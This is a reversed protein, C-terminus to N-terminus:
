FCPSLCTAIPASAERGAAESRSTCTTGSGPRFASIGDEGSTRFTEPLTRSTSTRESTSISRKQSVSRWASYGSFDFWIQLTYGIVAWLVSIGDYLAPAKFVADVAIGIRDAFVIKKTLGLLFQQAGAFLNKKGVRHLRDLQPLFDHAKVIPGSTIQPFFSVYVALRVLNKEAPISKKRVDLLYSMAQFLYFSIGLPLIIGLAGVDPIGFAACFSEIFFNLYKCVALIGLCFLVPLVVFVNREKKEYALACFYCVLIVGALLFLFRWDWYGYFVANALLFVIQQQGATKTFRLALVLACFLLAFALSYFIM